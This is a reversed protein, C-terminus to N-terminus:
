PSHFMFNPVAVNGEILKRLKPVRLRRILLELELLGVKSRLVRM